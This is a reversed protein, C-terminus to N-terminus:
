KRIDPPSLDPPQQQLLLDKLGLYMLNILYTNGCNTCVLAAMPLVLDQSAYSSQQAGLPQGIMETSGALGVFGDELGWSLTQCLPCPGLAQRPMRTLFAKLIRARAEDSWKM